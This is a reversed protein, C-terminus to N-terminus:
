LALDLPHEVDARGDRGPDLLRCQSRACGGPDSRSRGGFTGGPRRTISSTGEPMGSSMVSTTGTISRAGNSM